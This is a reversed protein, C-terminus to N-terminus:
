NFPSDIPLNHPNTIVPVAMDSAPPAGNPKAATAAAPSPESETALSTREAATSSSGRGRNAFLTPALNDAVHDEQNRRLYAVAARADEYANYFLTYARQRILQAEAPTSPGDSKEGIAGLLEVARNGAGQLAEATVPTRSQINSWNEKFVTVLLFVDTALAQYGPVKKCDKLREGNIHGYSALSVADRLLRDRVETLEAGIETINSRQALTGRHLVNAQNLALAYQELKDFRQLDFTPLHEAMEPRLARLKPLKGIVTTVASVVDVNLAVLEGEDLASMEPRLARFAAEPALEVLSNGGLLESQAM